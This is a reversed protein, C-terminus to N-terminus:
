FKMKKDTNLATTLSQIRSKNGQKSLNNFKALGVLPLSFPVPLECLLSALLPDFQFFSFDGILHQRVSKSVTILM